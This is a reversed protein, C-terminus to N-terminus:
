CVTNRVEKFFVSANNSFAIWWLKKSMMVIIYLGFIQCSVAILALKSIYGPFPLVNVLCICICFVHLKFVVLM